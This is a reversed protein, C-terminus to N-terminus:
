SPVVEVSESSVVNEEVSEVVANLVGVPTIKELELVNSVADIGTEVVVSVIEAPTVKGDENKDFHELNFKELMKFLLDSHSALKSLVNVIKKGGFGRSVVEDEMERKLVGRAIPVSSIFNPPLDSAAPINALEIQLCHSKGFNESGLRYRIEVLDGGIHLRTVTTFQIQGDGIGLPSGNISTLLYLENTESVVGGSYINPFPGPDGTISNSGAPSDVETGLLVFGRQRRYQIDPLLNLYKLGFAEYANIGIYGYLFQYYNGFPDKILKLFGGTCKDAPGALFIQVIKQAVHQAVSVTRILRATYLDGYEIHKQPTITLDNDATFPNYHGGVLNADLVALNDLGSVVGVVRGYENIVPGGINGSRIPNTSLVAEFGWYNRNFDGGTDPGLFNDNNVNNIVTGEIIGMSQNDINDGIVYVKEGIALCRSEGWHLVPHTSISPTCDDIPPLLELLALDFSPSVYRLKANYFYADGTQAANQVKVTYTKARALEVGTIPPPVRTFGNLFVVSAATLILDSAVFFGSGNQYVEDDDIPFTALVSVVASSLSYFIDTSTLKVASANRQQFKNYVSTGFCKGGKMSDQRMNQRKLECHYSM